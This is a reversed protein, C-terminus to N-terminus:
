GILGGGWFRNVDNKNLGYLAKEINRLREEITLSDLHKFHATAKAEEKARECEHCINRFDRVGYVVEKEKGCELCTITSLLAM